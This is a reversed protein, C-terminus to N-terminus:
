QDKSAPNLNAGAQDNDVPQVNGAAPAIVPSAALNPMTTDPTPLEASALGPAITPNPAAAPNPAANSGLAAETQLDAPSIDKLTSNIAQQAAEFQKNAEDLPDPKDTAPNGVTPNEPPVSAQPQSVVPSEVPIEASTPPQSMAPQNIVPEEAINGVVPQNIAPEAVPNISPTVPQITPQPPTAPQQPIAPQQPEVAPQQPLASQQSETAPQQSLDPQQPAAVPQQPEAVPQQPMAAAATPQTSLNPQNDAQNNMFAGRIQAQVLPTTYSKSDTIQQGETAEPNYSIYFLQIIEQTNLQRAYLGIRNFQSILHDRKPDLLNHAKELMISKEVGDINQEKFGSVLNQGPTLGMELSSAPIVVYFKKDLVNRERILDNVFQRYRQIWMRKVSDGAQQEKEQLLQLYSTADKTQSRIVIQIPYTLSNLLGAYAYIVADQEEEALLGFNMANVTLVLAASGDKMILVDNTVDYIDLFHQTTSSITSNDTM